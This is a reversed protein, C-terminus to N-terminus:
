QNVIVRDDPYEDKESHAPKKKLRKRFNGEKVQEEDEKPPTWTTDKFKM